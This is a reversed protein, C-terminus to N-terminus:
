YGRHRTLIALVYYPPRNGVSYNPFGGPQDGARRLQKEREAKEMRAALRQRFTFPVDSRSPASACADPEVKIAIEPDSMTVKQIAPLLSM